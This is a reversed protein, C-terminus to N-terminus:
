PLTRASAAAAPAAEGRATAEWRWAIVGPLGLLIDRLRRLLALALAQEPPIGFLACIVVFGGEQVGLAGPILFGLSRVTQSLSEVVLAEALGAEIGLLRMAVWMELTGLLWSVLHAAGSLWLRRPARYLRVVADHLGAAGTGRGGGLRAMFGEVVRFLGWRQAAMFGAALVAGAAILVAMWGAGAGAHPVLLLVALGVAAFAIQAAMETALDVVVSAAAAVGRVGRLVLLQARAVEGAIQVVPLLANVAQRIWRLRVLTGWGPRRPDEILPAWGLAAFVIQPLHLALVAAMGWGAQLLLRLIEAPDNTVILVAVVTLGVLLSIASSWSV